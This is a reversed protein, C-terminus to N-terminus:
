CPLPEDEIRVVDVLMPATDVAACVSSGETVGLTVLSQKMISATQSLDGKLEITIRCSDVRHNVSIVEGTLRGAQDTSM